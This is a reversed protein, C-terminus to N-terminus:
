SMELDFKNKCFAKLNRYIRITESSKEFVDNISEVVEDTNQSYEHAIENRTERLKLWNTREVLDLEELRNLIDIFTKRKVDEEALILVAPFLSEGITDQLKSFRFILQDIFSSKVADINNYVDITLPFIENLYSKATEIREVHKDCEYIKEKFTNRIEKTM